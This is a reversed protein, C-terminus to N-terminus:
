KLTLKDSVPMPSGLALSREGPSSGGITILYDGSLIRENGSEDFVTLMEPTISFEIKVSEGPKLSIRKIGKLSFLPAPFSESLPPTIYLQVVEDADYNGKNTLVCSAKSTKGSEIMKMSLKLDSYIFKSYSLGYGFPYMPEEKMYRYTRGTMSYDEFAPLQSLSKPFTIPLRGSPSTDGYIIDAVANGGEEGPYWVHLIADALDHIETMDVPCAGTLIVIVPKNYDKRLKKLYDIQNKPIQFEIWDGLFPSAISEGEEGELIPSLGMAVIIADTRKAAGMAWDIPNINERDLLFGKKYEIFCGPPVKSTIGELITSMNSSVGYYNGLLVEVNNANPGILFISRTDKSLPLVNNNKLMVISKHAAERALKRHKDCNIVDTSINEFPTTGPPDFLGLKFRTRLLDALNENIEDETILGKELAILLNPNYLSGCNLNVGSKLALAASEAPGAAVHHGTHFDRLAWCDSVVHGKFGWSDRLITKLLYKSGCCAEDNFRNYACMISEVKGEMVLAKFAFLYTEHLDKQNTLANFEHRLGEPGSHVAFHKACAAAKLYRPHDGQLGKVFSVGLKATLYPDEGYTEMGRGWRPDRFININPTWFTLGGSPTLGGLQLSHGRAVVAHHFARAEDSIASSIKFILDEDFTAAMGIAQPFVTARGLRALGHLCENWWGYAPVELRPLAPSDHMMQSVKEEVTMRSILDAIREDYSLQPNQYPFTTETKKDKNTCSILILIFFIISYNKLRNKNM